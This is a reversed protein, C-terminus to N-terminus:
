APVHDRLRRQYVSVMRPIAYFVRIAFDQRCAPKSEIMTFVVALLVVLVFVGWYKLIQRTM